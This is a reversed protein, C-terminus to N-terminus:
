QNLRALLEGILKEAVAQNAAGYLLLQGNKFLSVQHDHWSFRLFIPSEEVALGSGTLRYSIQALDPATLHYKYTQSGCLATVRAEPTAPTAAPDQCVPCAPDRPVKFSQFTPQWADITWVRDFSVAAPDILLKMALSVQLGAVLPVLPTIVGLLDCDTKTLEALNPYLCNLCPHHGDPKIPMVTGFTGACSAFLYPRNAKRAAQNLQARTAYNDLCDLILDCDAPILDAELSAPLLHLDVAPNIEKLHAGAAVVKLRAAAADATTYLAQRQLNTESVQDPDILTLEGIGARTLLAAAHSGLAGLGVITVHADALKAQGAPGVQRVREQRDYRNM